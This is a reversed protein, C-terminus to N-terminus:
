RQDAHEYAKYKMIKIVPDLVEM